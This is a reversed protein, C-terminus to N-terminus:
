NQVLVGKEEISNNKSISKIKRAIEDFIRNQEPKELTDLPKKLSAASQFQSLKFKHPGTKPNPFNYELLDYICTELILPIILLGESHSAHLLAPLESNTIFESNLFNTSILLIAISAQDLKEQIIGRWRDGYELDEGSWVKITGDNTIPKIYKRLENCWKDDKKSYSIFVQTVDTNNTKPELKTQKTPTDRCLIISERKQAKIITVAGEYAGKVIDKPDIIFGAATAYNILDEHSDHLISDLMNLHREYADSVVQEMENDLISKENFNERIKNFLHEIDTDQTSSSYVLVAGPKLVRYIERLCHARDDIAYLANMMVAGDFFDDDFERLSLILDGKVINVNNIADINLKVVKDWMYELMEQNNELAWVTRNPEKILEITNNGTGSALDVVNKADGLKDVIEAVLANYSDFNLLVHDYAKAYLSWNVDKKIRKRLDRWMLVSNDASVINLNVSWLDINMDNPIKSAIKKFAVKGYKTKLVLREIDVIPYITQKYIRNSRKIVQSKNELELIFSEVHLGRMLGLPKAILEDFMPNWDLFQFNQDLIYTPGILDQMSGRYKKIIDWRERLKTSQKSKKTEPLETGEYQFWLHLFDKESVKKESWEKLLKFASQHHEEIENQNKDLIAIASQVIDKNIEHYNPIAELKKKIKVIIDRTIFPERSKSFIFSIQPGYNVCIPPNEDNRLFSATVYNALEDTTISGDNNADAGGNEIGDNITKVLNSRTFTGTIEKYTAILSLSYGETISSKFNEFCSLIASKLDTQSISSAYYLDVIIIIRRCQTGRLMTALNEARISTTLLTTIDTDITTLHLQQDIELKAHGSYYLIVQDDRCAERFIKNVATSIQYHPLDILRLSEAKGLTPDTLFSEFSNIDEESSPLPCLTNQSMPFETNGILIATKKNAM